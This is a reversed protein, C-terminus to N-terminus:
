RLGLLRRLDEIDVREDPERDRGFVRFTSAGNCIQAAPQYRKPAAHGRQEDSEEGREPSGDPGTKLELRLNEGQPM